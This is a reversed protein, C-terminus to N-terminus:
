VHRVPREPTVELDQQSRDAVHEPAIPESRRRFRRRAADDRASIACLAIVVVIVGIWLAALVALVIGVSIDPM